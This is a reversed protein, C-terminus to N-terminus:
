RHQRRTSLTENEGACAPDNCRAVKLDGNSRGPLQRGPKRRHRDRALHLLRRRRRQRGHLADRERRCLRPRQLARGQPRRELADYYSVVPNGDTGIALSTYSGVAGASDVTSLTENGGACAPDNCRAVKLDGNTGDYYSVVPNGDTGIALSTYSGVVGASDVTSLTENGGACAPDNCRAVKLDPNSGTTTASSRTETPASRSRPAPASTAPATSRPSRRTGARAPPTTAARSRSTATRSTGHLQRGPKRRHRARALRLLRRLRRQRRNKRPVTGLQASQGARLRLLGPSHERRRWRKRPRRERLGLGSREM